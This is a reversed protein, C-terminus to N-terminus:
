PSVKVLDITGDRAGAALVPTIVEDVALLVDIRGMAGPAESVSADIVYVRHAIRTAVPSPDGPSSDPTLYVDVVDGAGLRGLVAHAAPLSVGMAQPAAVMEPPRLASALLPEGELLPVVLSWDALEGLTTGEILGEADDVQRTGIDLGSLAAGAPLDGGAVLVSTRTPPATIILVLITALAAALGGVLYRRDVHPFSMTAPLSRLAM